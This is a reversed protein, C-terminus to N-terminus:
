RSLTKPRVKHSGIKKGKNVEQKKGLVAKELTDARSVLPNEAEPLDLFMNLLLRTEGIEIM